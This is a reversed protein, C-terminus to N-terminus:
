EPETWWCLKGPSSDQGHVAVPEAVPSGGSSREVGGGRRTDYRDAASICGHNCCGCSDSGKPCVPEARIKPHKVRLGIRDPRHARPLGPCDPPKRCSPTRQAQFPFIARCVTDCCQPQCASLGSWRPCWEHSCRLFVQFYYHLKHSWLRGYKGDRRTTNLCCRVHLVDNSSIEVIYKGEMM